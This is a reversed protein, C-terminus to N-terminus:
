GSEGARPIGRPEHAECWEGPQLSGLDWEGFRIRKLATVEHGLAKCLRRIERNKGEKLELFLLSERGSSKRIGARNASLREGDLEIGKEMRALTDPAVEGRVSVVYTRPVGSAPDTLWSSLRTDNTLLLLGTTHMDLRGVPHFSQLEPPLLDYITKRGDPDRKTTVVGKPKHFLVIRTTEKRAKKGQIEIHASGPNVERLPDREISGHVKVSGEEILRRAETRSALGLKSLARELPVRGKSAAKSFRSM